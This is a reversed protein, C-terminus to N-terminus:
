KVFDLSTACTAPKIVCGAFFGIKENEALHTIQKVSRAVSSWGATVQAFVVSSITIVSKFPFM